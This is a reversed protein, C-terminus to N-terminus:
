CLDIFGICFYGCMISDYAQMYINTKVNINGIFKGIKKPTDEVGFGGFYIVNKANMYLAIWYTGLSKHEYLNIVYAKGKTKPLNNRSYVGNFNPENSLVNTNWFRNFSSAANFLKAPELLAKM